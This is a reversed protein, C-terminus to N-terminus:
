ERAVKQLLSEYQDVCVARSFNKELANRGNLGTIDLAEPQYSRYALVAEALREPCGPPVNVGCNTRVVLRAIESQEPSVALIPRASAMINFTKGPLSTNSLTSNLTVLGADAAALMVPYEKRPAYPLFLVNHLANQQASAVLEDKRVGEGVMVFVIEPQDKLIKAAALVDDLSSTNGMNGSYLLVFKGNLGHKARFENEKPLPKVEDPDAWVPTISLKESPVGKKLLIERFGESIISIATAKQYILKELAYFLRIATRNRILGTAVATDPYLDEVRLAWPVRAMRSYIWAALGLPLPPSFSLLVDPRESFLAGYLANMSFTAFNVTRSWFSKSPSIHSWVRTIRVGNREEKSLIRNKYGAYVKGYPYNPACTVFTVSHGRKVLDEALDTALVAGSIEEPAYHQAMMMIKM